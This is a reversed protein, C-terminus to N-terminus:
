TIKDFFDIFWYHLTACAKININIKPAIFWGHASLFTEDDYTYGCNGNHQKNKEKASRVPRGM